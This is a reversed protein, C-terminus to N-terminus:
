IFRNQLQELPKGNVILQVYIEALDTEVQHDFFLEILFHFIQCDSFTRQLVISSGAVYGM